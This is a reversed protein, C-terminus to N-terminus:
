LDKLVATSPQPWVIAATDLDTRPLENVAQLVALPQQQLPACDLLRIMHMQECVDTSDRPCLVINCAKPPPQTFHDTFVSQFSDKRQRPGLFYPM